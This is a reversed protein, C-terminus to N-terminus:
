GAVHGATAVELICKGMGDVLTVVVGADELRKRGVNEGVFKEPEKIGVYVVKIAGNLRLIREVCATNGSLRKNCSEM